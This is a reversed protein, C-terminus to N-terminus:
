SIYGYTPFSFGPCQGPKKNPATNANTEIMAASRAALRGVTPEVGGQAM